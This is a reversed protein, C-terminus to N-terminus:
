RGEFRDGGIQLVGAGVFHHNPQEVIRHGILHLGNDGIPIRLGYEFQSSLQFTLRLQVVVQKAVVALGFGEGILDAPTEAEDFLEDRVQAEFAVALQHLAEWDLIREFQIFILALGLELFIELELDIFSKAKLVSLLYCLDQLDESPKSHAVFLHIEQSFQQNRLVEIRKAHTRKSMQQIHQPM